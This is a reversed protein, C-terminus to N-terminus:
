RAAGQAMAARFLQQGIRDANTRIAEVNLDSLLGDLRDAWHADAARLDNVSPRFLDSAGRRASLAELFDAQLPDVNGTPDISNEDAEIILQHMSDDCSPVAAANALDQRFQRRFSEDELVDITPRSGHLVWQFIWANECAEPRLGDLHARCRALLEARDFASPVEVLFREWRVSAAPLFDCRLTGDQEVTVLTCGRPGAQDAGRGQM